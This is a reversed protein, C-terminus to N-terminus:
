TRGEAKATGLQVSNSQMAAGAWQWGNRVGPSPQAVTRVGFFAAPNRPFQAGLKDQLLFTAM